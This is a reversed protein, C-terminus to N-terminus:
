SLEFGHDLVTVSAGLHDAIDLVARYDVGWGSASHSVRVSWTRVVEGADATYSGADLQVNFMPEVWGPEEETGTVDNSLDCLAKFAKLAKSKSM